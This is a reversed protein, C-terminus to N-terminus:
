DGLISLSPELRVGTKEFVRETAFEMLALVDAARSTGRNVVFNPHKTSIEVDGLRRGKLGAAALLRAATDGSPDGFVYGASPYARPQLAKAQRVRERVEAAVAPAAARRLALRAALIISGAPRQFDAFRLTPPAATFDGLVGEQNVFYVTEVLEGIAGDGCGAGTALAGGVTGPIGALCEVGTLGRVAAERVLEALSAGAGVTVSPGRFEMRSFGGDLKLVMGHHGRDGVLVHTGGGLVAIPLRERGAYDLARRVDDLDQPIVFLEAPGGCRLATRFALPERFRIEGRIHGLM